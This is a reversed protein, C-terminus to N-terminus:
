EGMKLSDQFRKKKKKKSVLPMFGKKKKKKAGRSTNCIYMFRFIAMKLVFNFKERERERWETAFILSFISAIIYLTDCQTGRPTVLHM